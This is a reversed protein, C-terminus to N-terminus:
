MLDFNKLFLTNKPNKKYLVILFYIYIISRLGGNLHTRLRYISSIKEFRVLGSSTRFFTNGGTGEERKKDRERETVCWWSSIPFVRASRCVLLSVSSATLWQPSAWRRALLTDPPPLPSAHKWQCAGKGRPFFCYHCVFNSVNRLVDYFLGLMTKRKWTVRSAPKEGSQKHTLNGGRGQRLTGAACFLCCSRSCSCVFVM